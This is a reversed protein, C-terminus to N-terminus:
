KKFMQIVNDPLQSEIMDFARGKDFIDQIFDREEQSLQSSKMFIRGMTQAIAEAITMRVQQGNIPVYITYVPYWQNREAIDLFGVQTIWAAVCLYSMFDPDIEYRDLLGRVNAIANAANTLDKGHKFVSSFFGM